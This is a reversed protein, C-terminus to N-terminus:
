KEPWKLTRIAQNPPCNWLVAFLRNSEGGSFLISLFFISGRKLVTYKLYSYSHKQPTVAKKRCQPPSILTWRKGCLFNFSSELVNWCLGPAESEEDTFHPSNHPHFSWTFYICNPYFGWRLIQRSILVWPVTLHSSSFSDARGQPLSCWASDTWDSGSKM